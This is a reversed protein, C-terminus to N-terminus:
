NDGNIVIPDKQSLVSDKNFVLKRKRYNKINFQTNFLVRELIGSLGRAGVNKKEALEAIADLADPTFELHVNEVEFLKQYQKILANKPKTLIQVLENKKLREFPIIVPVRGVLEPIMGFRVLDEPEVYKLIFNEDIEEDDQAVNESVFGIAQKKLIRDRIIKELGEFAGGLIFLINKTNVEIYDQGPQRKGKGQVRVTDGEIMRLLAQQVGEGSVDRSNYMDSKKAKKDIEDIFVIGREAKEVNWDAAVLLKQIITDVDDGVYGSETLNTSNIVVFPVDLYKSVTEVIYTKGSGTPGILFMNTKKIEINDTDRSNLFIRKYHNAVAVSVAKKAHEQGVVYNDLHEYVKVPDPFDEGSTEIQIDESDDSNRNKAKKEEEKLVSYCIFVCNDCIYVDPGAILRNVDEKKKRCFSCRIPKEM